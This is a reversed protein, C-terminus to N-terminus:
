SSQHWWRLLLVRRSRRHKPPDEGDVFFIKAVCSEVSFFFLGFSMTRLLMIIWVSMAIM